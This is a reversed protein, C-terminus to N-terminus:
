VIRRELEPILEDLKGLVQCAMEYVVRTLVLEESHTVSGIRVDGQVLVLMNSPIEPDVHAGGLKNAAFLILQKRTYRFDGELYVIENWYEDFSEDTLQPANFNPRSGDSTLMIGLYVIVGNLNQPPNGRFILRLGHREALAPLIATSAATNYFITRLTSALRYAFHTKGIEYQAL